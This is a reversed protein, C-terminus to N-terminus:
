GSRPLAGCTGRLDSNANDDWSGDLARSIGEFQVVPLGQGDQEGPPEIETVHVKMIILRTAEGVDLAPRPM